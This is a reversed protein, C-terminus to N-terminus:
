LRIHYAPYIARARALVEDIGLEQWDGRVTNLFIFRYQSKLSQATLLEASTINFFYGALDAGVTERNTTKLEILTLADINAAIDHPDALDIERQLRVADYAAGALAKGHMAFAILVARREAPTLLRCCPDIECLLRKGSRETRFAASSRPPTDSQIERSGPVADDNDLM